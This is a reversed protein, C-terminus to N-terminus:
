LTEPTFTSCTHKIIHSREWERMSTVPLEVHCRMAFFERLIQYFLKQEVYLHRLSYSSALVRFSIKLVTALVMCRNLLVAEVWFLGRWQRDFFNLACAWRWIWLNHKPFIHILGALMAASTSPTPPPLPTTLRNTSLGYAVCKMFNTQM